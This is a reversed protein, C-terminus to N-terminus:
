MHIEKEGVVCRLFCRLREKLQKPIKSDIM